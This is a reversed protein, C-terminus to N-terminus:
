VEIVLFACKRFPSRRGLVHHDNSGYQVEQPAFRGGHACRPDEAVGPLDVCHCAPPYFGRSFSLRYTPKEVLGVQVLILQDLDHAGLHLGLVVVQGWNQDVSGLAWEPYERPVEHYFRERCYSPLYEVVVDPHYLLLSGEGELEQFAAEL